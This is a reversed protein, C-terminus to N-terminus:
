LKIKDYCMIAFVDLTCRQKNTEEEVYFNKAFSKILKRVTTGKKM